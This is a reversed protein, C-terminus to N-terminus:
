HISLDRDKEEHVTSNTNISGLNRVFWAIKWNNIVSFDSAKIIFGVDQM